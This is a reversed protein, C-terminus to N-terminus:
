PTMWAHENHYAGDFPHLSVAYAQQRRACCVFRSLVSGHCWVEAADLLVMILVLISAPPVVTGRKSCVIDKYVEIIMCLVTLVYAHM